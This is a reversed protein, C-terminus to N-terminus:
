VRERCSARGIEYAVDETSKYGDPYYTGSILSRGKYNENSVVTAWKLNTHLAKFTWQPYQAHLQRLGAKYTEPFGEAALLGEFGDTTEAITESSSTEATTEGAAADAATTTAELTSESISEATTESAAPPDLVVLDSLVYGNTTAGSYIFSRFLM